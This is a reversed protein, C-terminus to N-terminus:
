EKLLKKAHARKRQYAIVAEPTLTTKLLQFAKNSERASWPM